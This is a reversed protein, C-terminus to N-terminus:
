KLFRYIEKRNGLRVVWVLLREEKVEYVVRLYGVRIRQLALPTDSLSEAGRPWPDNGLEAIADKIKAAM